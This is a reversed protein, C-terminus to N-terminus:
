NNKIKCFNSMGNSEEDDDNKHGNLTKIHNEKEDPTEDL